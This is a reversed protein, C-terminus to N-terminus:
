LVSEQACRHCEHVAAGPILVALIGFVIALLGRVLLVWWHRAASELYMGAEQKSPAAGLSGSRHVDLWASSPAISRFPSARGRRKSIGIDRKLEIDTRM